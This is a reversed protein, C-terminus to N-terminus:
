SGPRPPELSERRMAVVGYALCLVIFVGGAVLFASWAITSVISDDYPATNDDTLMAVLFGTVAVVFSVAIGFPLRGLLRRSTTM